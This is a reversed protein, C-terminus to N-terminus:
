AFHGEPTSQGESEEGIDPLIQKETETILGGFKM